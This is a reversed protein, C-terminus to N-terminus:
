KDGKSWPDNVVNTRQNARAAFSAGISIKGGEGGQGPVYSNNKMKSDVVSEIGKSWDDALEDLNVKTTDLDEGLFKDIFKSNLKIGKKDAYSVAQALLDKRALKAELEERAKREKALEIQVPDTILDPYKTHLENSFEKEWTGNEKMTKVAKAHYKDNESDLYSKFEKDTKIKGKFAELTAGEGKFTEEIDTGRLLENIDDEDKASEIKKLLDSKKM